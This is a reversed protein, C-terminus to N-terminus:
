KATKEFLDQRAVLHEDGAAHVAEHDLPAPVHVPPDLGACGFVARLGAGAGVRSPRRRGAFWARAGPHEVVAVRGSSGSVISGCTLVFTLAGLPVGRLGDNVRTPAPRM